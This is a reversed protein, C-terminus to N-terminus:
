KVFLDYIIEETSRQSTPGQSSSSDKQVQRARVSIGSNQNILLMPYNPDNSPAIRIPIPLVWFSANPIDNPAIEWLSEDSLQIRRGGQINLAVTLEQKDPQSPTTLSEQSTKMLCKDNLWAELRLRQKYTLSSVGTEKQDQKSMVEDLLIQGGSLATTALLLLALTYRM